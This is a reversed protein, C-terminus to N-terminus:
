QGPKADGGVLAIDADGLAIQLDGVESEFRLDDGRDCLHRANIPVEDVGVFALLDALLTESERVLSKGVILLLKFELGNGGHLHHGVLRSHRRGLAIEGHGAGAQPQVLQQHFVREGLDVVGSISSIGTM